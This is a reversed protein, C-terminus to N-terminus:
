GTTSAPPPMRRREEGIRRDEPARREVITRREASRDSAMTLAADADALPMVRRLTVTFASGEGEISRARLDGGMGRALDRSIALGLGTGGADRAYDTRVQVFPEFVAELKDPPIGIGTDAVRLYAVDNPASGDSRDVLEITVVGGPPTFKAANSLLNLFVQGLKERDAWVPVPSPRNPGESELEPLRVEVALGKAALQPEAFPLMERIVDAVFVPQQDYAIHGSELSAFNLVDNVLGLLHRQARNIRALAEHQASTVPGHLGLDIIQTYGQIANLPTRLEHSMVALFESKARNATEAERRASEASERASERAAAAAREATVDAMAGIMRTARGSADRAVYGRDTVTAYTGDGRRFRYEDRWAHGGDPAEGADDIVAHIGSVVRDRDDPHIGEYWSKVSGDLTGRAYGFVEYIGENWALRNTIMDWDWIANSTARAALAYREESRRLADEAEKRETVDFNVGAGHTPNGHEDGFYRGRVAMWRVRGDPWRVRVEVDLEGTTMAHALASEFVARDEELVHRKAIELGWEPQPRDYGFLRDHSPTRWPAAGSAIDLQWVGIKAAEVAVELAQESQRRAAEARRADAMASRLEIERRASDALERIIDVEDSTWQRPETDVVCFAGIAQGGVVLPVGVYAGVGLSRVTPVDRYVPHDAADSIVLPKELSGGALTYHCFTEGSLERTSAIPEALGVASVYFDRYEDVLSVFAAPARLLRAALRTLRDFSPETDVDLLGTARLVALRDPDAVARRAAEREPATAASQETGPEKSSSDDPM